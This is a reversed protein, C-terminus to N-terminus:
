NWFCYPRWLPQRIVESWARAECSRQRNAQDRHSRAAVQGHIPQARDVDRREHQSSRRPESRQIAAPSWGLVARVTWGLSRAPVSEAQSGSARTARYAERRHRDLLDVSDLGADKMALKLNDLPAGYDVGDIVIPVQLDVASASNQFFWSFRGQPGDVTFLYGRNGGGNPFDEAVGAHLGGTPADPLPTSNLEVPNHQEPNQAPDGSHNWRVVRMTVGDGLQIAERGYVARCRDAPVNEALAQLCTTKSGIIRAGTLKSWTATDFSHDFHSHGTLLLNVSSRGGLANMVRTVGAVDPKFPQHTNALGGGGGFFASQPIRTIYGDTIIKLPGLEYYMNSISFWTIDVFSPGAASAPTMSVFAALAFVITLHRAREAMRHLEMEMRANRGARAEDEAAFSRSKRICTLPHFSGATFIVWISSRTRRTRTRTRCDWASCCAPCASSRSSHQWWPSRDAKGTSCRPRESDKEVARGAARLFPDDFGAMWPMGGHMRTLKLEVTKPTVKKMYAEFLAGIKEPTQDPVLRMSVKAMAVAPIVTKPGEGTFGSLLGNVEFTPRGWTREYVTYGSEGTLKPAGLEKRYNKENFPLKKWEEREADTLPRVDDYFGPIKVRGGKDKM